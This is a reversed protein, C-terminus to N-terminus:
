TSKFIETRYNIVYQWIDENKILNSSERRFFISTYNELTLTTDDYLETLETYLDGINNVNSDDDFISFQIVSNEMTADFTWHPVNSILYFAAYPYTTNQPVETNHLGGTLTVGLGTSETFKLYIGKFLSNM